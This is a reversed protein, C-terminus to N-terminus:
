LGFCGAEELVREILHLLNDDTLISKDLAYENAQQGVPV